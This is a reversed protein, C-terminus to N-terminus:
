CGPRTIVHLARPTMITRGYYSNVTILQCALRNALAGPPALLGNAPPAFRSPPVSRPLRFRRHAHSVPLAQASVQSEIPSFDLLLRRNTLDCPSLAASILTRGLRHAGTPMADAHRSSPSPSRM